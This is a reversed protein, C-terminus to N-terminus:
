SIMTKKMVIEHLHYATICVPSTLITSPSENWCVCQKALGHSNGAYRQVVITQKDNLAPIPSDKKKGQWIRYAM